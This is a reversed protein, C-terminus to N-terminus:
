KKFDLTIVIRQGNGEYPLSWHFYYAPMLVLTGPEPPLTHRPWGAMPIGGFSEPCGIQLLGGDPTATRDVQPAQAYYIGVLWADSHLHAEVYAKPKYINSWIELTHDPPRMRRLPHTEPLMALRQCYADAASTVQMTLARVAPTTLYQVRQMRTVDVMYHRDTYYQHDAGEYMEEILQHHFADM